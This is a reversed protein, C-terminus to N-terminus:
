PIPTGTSIKVRKAYGIYFNPTWSRKWGIGRFGEVGIYDVLEQAFWEERILGYFEGEFSWEGLRGKTRISGNAPHYGDSAQYYAQSIDGIWVGTLWVIFAKFLGNVSNETYPGTNSSIGFIFCDENEYIEDNVNNLNDNESKIYLLNAYTKDEVAFSSSGSVVIFLVIIGVALIKVYLKSKLIESGRHM